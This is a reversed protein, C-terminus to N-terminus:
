VRILSFRGYNDIHPRTGPGCLYGHRGDHELDFGGRLAWIKEMEERHKTKPANAAIREKEFFVYSGYFVPSTCGAVAGKKGRFGSLQRGQLQSPGKETHFQAVVNRLFAAQTVGDKRLHASIKRRIEDCTDYVPVADSEEGPIIINSIDRATTSTKSSNKTGSVTQAPKTASIGSTHTGKESPKAVTRPKKPFPVNTHEMYAFLALANDYTASQMGKTPGNQHMFSYYSKSSSGLTDIFEGVKVSSNELFRNIKSRVTNANQPKYMIDHEEMYEMWETNGIFPYQGLGSEDGSRKRKNQSREAPMLASKETTLDVVSRQGIV